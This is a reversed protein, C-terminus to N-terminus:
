SLASAQLIEKATGDSTPWVTSNTEKEVHAKRQLHTNHAEHERFDDRADWQAYCSQRKVTTKRHLAIHCFRDTPLSLLTAAQTDQSPNLVAAKWSDSWFPKQTRWQCQSSTRLFRSVDWHHAQEWAPSWEHSGEAKWGSTRAGNIVPLLVSRWHTNLCLMPDTFRYLARCHSDTYVGERQRSLQLYMCQM